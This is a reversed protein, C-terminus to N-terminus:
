KPAYDNYIVNRRSLHRDGQPRSSTPKAYVGGKEVNIKPM